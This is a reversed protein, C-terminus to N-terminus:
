LHNSVKQWVNNIAKMTPVGSEDMALIKLSM